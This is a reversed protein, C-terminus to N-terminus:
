QCQLWAAPATVVSRECCMLLAGDVCCAKGLCGDGWGGRPWVMGQEGGSGRGGEVAGLSSLFFDMRIMIDLVPPPCLALASAMLCANWSSYPSSYVTPALGAPTTCM